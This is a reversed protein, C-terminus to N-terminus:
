FSIEESFLEPNQVLDSLRQFEEKDLGTIARRLEAMQGTSMPHIGASRKVGESM